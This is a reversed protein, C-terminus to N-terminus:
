WRPCHRRGSPPPSYQSLEIRAIVPLVIIPFVEPLLPPPIQPSNELRKISPSLMERFEASEEPEHPPPIPHSNEDIEMAPLLIM